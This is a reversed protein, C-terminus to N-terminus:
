TIDIILSEDMIKEALIFTIPGGVPVCYKGPNKRTDLYEPDRFECYAQQFATCETHEWCQELYRRGYEQLGTSKCHSFCTAAEISATRDLENFHDDKVM